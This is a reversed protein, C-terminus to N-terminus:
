KKYHEVKFLSKLCEVPADEENFHVYDPIIMQGNMELWVKEIPKLVDHNNYTGKPLLGFHIELKTKTDGISTLYTKLFHHVAGALNASQENCLYDM